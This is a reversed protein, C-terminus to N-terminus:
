EAPAATPEPEEVQPIRWATFVALGVWLLDFWGFVYDLNDRFARMMTTSYIEVVDLGFREGIEEAQWAYGLYKGLLIGLLASAVAAGLAAAAGIAVTSRSAEQESLEM